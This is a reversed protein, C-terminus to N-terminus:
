IWNKYYYHKWKNLGNFKNIVRLLHKKRRKKTFQLNEKNIHNLLIYNFCVNMRKVIIKRSSIAKQPSITTALWDKNVFGEILIAGIGVNQAIAVELGKEDWKLVM